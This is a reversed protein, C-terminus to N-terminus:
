AGGAGGVIRGECDCGDILVLIDIAYEDFTSGELIGKARFGSPESGFKVLGEESSPAVHDTSVIKSTRIYKM